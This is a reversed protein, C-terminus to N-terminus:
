PLAPLIELRGTSRAYVGGPLTVRAIDRYLGPAFLRTERPTLLFRVLGDLPSVITVGPDGTKKALMEMGEPTVIQWRLMVRPDSVDLPSGDAALFRVHRVFTDGALVCLSDVSLPNEKEVRALKEEM